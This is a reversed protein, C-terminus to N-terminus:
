SIKPVPLLLTITTGVGEESELLLKGQLHQELAYKSSSLGIGCNMSTDTKTHKTSYFNDFVRAINDQSIGAGTDEISIYTKYQTDVLSGIHIIVSNNDKAPDCAECANSILNLLIHNIIVRKTHMLYTPTDCDITISVNHKIYLHKTISLIDQIDQIIDFTETALNFRIQKRMSELM